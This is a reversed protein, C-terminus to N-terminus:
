KHCDSCSAVSLLKQKDSFHPTHCSLCSLPTGNRQDSKESVPHNIVPHNTAMQLHCSLCLPNTDMLPFGKKDGGHVKHCSSCKGDRVPKHNSISKKSKEVMDEHCQMCLDNQSSLLLGRVNSGHPNHCSLCMGQSVPPHPFKANADKQVDDHCNYCLSPVDENLKEIQPEKGSHCTDCGEKVPPHLNERLLKNESSGHPDHCVSCMGEKVKYGKHAIQIEKIDGHCSTCLNEQPINILYKNKSTHPNHCTSCEGNGVPAHVSKAKLKTAINSHCNLCLVTEKVNLLKVENSFHPSHCTVCKKEEFPKHVVAENKITHCRDCLKEESEVLLPKASSGHPSHCSLCNGEAFPKHTDKANKSILSDHCTFCLGPMKENLEIKGKNTSNTAFM